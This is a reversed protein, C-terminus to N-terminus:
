ELQSWVSRSGGMKLAGFLAGVLIGGFLLVSLIHVIGFCQAFVIATLIVGVVLTYFGWKQWGLLAILAMTNVGFLVIMAPLFWNPAEAFQPAGDAIIDPLKKQVDQASQLIESGAFLM